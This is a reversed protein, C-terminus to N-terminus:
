WGGDDLLVVRTLKRRDLEQRYEGGRVASSLHISELHPLRELLDFTEANLTKEITVQRVRNAAKSDVLRALLPNNSVEVAELSAMMPSSLFTLYVDANSNRRLRKVTLLTREGSLRRWEEPGAASLPGLQAEVLCGAEFRVTSALLVDSLAGLWARQHKRQLSNRRAQEEPTTLGGASAVKLQLAVFEGRPDGHELLADAWVHRLELNKPAALVQEYLSEVHTPEDPAGLPTTM